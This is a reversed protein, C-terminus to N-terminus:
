DRLPLLSTDVAALSYLRNYQLERERNIVYDTNPGYLRVMVFVDNRNEEKVSVKLLLNTIGGSVTEVSFCSNDLKSWKNFLDKCLEIIRLSMDPLSLSTEVTLPSSQFDAHGNDQTEIAVDM